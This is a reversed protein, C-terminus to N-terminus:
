VVPVQGLEDGNAAVRPREEERLRFADVGGYGPRDGLGVNSLLRRGSACSLHGFVITPDVRWGPWRALIGAFALQAPAAEPTPFNAM